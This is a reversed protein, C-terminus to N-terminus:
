TAAMIRCVNVVGVKSPAVHGVQAIKGAGSLLLRRRFSHIATLGRKQEVPLRLSRLLLMGVHGAALATGRFNTGGNVAGAKCGWRAYGGASTVFRRQVLSALSYAKPTQDHHAAM